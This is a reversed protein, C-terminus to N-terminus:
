KCASVAQDWFCNKEKGDLSVVNGQNVFTQKAADWQQFVGGQVIFSDNLGDMHLPLGALLMPSTMDISRIALIYNTRTVGGPLQGAIALAQVAPFAYNIGSGLTPTTIPDLGKAKMAGVLWIAYPDNAYAPDRVDKIGPSVVMWGEAASGDGGVKDKGMFASSACGQSTFLYKAQANMGNQAAEVVIQTCQAGALM